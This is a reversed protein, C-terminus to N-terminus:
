SPGGPTSVTTVTIVHPAATLPFDTIDRGRMGASGAGGGGPRALVAHRRMDMERCMAAATALHEQSERAKGTRRYRPCTMGPGGLSGPATSSLSVLISPHGQSTL